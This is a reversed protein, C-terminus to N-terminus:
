ALRRFSFAEESEYPTAKVSALSAVNSVVNSQQMNYNSPMPLKM